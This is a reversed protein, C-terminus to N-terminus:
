ICAQRLEVGLRQARERSWGRSLHRVSLIRVAHSPRVVDTWRDPELQVGFHEQVHERAEGGHVLLVRPAIEDLLFDFVRTDRDAHSLDRAETTATAYLNTELCRVPAAAQTIWEIRQRTNSVKNRRTRGPKLPRRAREELYARFWVAKDFGHEATWFSWFPQSMETAPNLGVIFAACALPSGDCVFPRVASGDGILNRLRSEFNRLEAPM